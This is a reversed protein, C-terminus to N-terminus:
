RNMTKWGDVSSDSQYINKNGISARLIVEGAAKTHWYCSIMPAQPGFKEMEFERAERWSVKGDGNTDVVSDSADFFQGPVMPNPYLGGQWWSCRAACFDYLYSNAELWPNQMASAVDDVVTGYGANVAANRAGYFDWTEAYRTDAPEGPLSWPPKSGQTGHSSDSRCQYVKRSKIYSELNSLWPPYTGVNDQYMEIALQFQHLNNICYAQNGKEKAGQVAPLLFSALIGIIAIVVLLEILTFGAPRKMKAVEKLNHRLM